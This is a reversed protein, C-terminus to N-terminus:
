GFLMLKRLGSLIAFQELIGLASHLSKESGDLLLSTDDAFQSTERGNINIGKM